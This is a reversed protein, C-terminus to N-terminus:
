SLIWMRHNLDRIRALEDLMARQNQLMAQEAASVQPAPPNFKQKNRMFIDMIQQETIAEEEEEEVQQVPPPLVVKSAEKAKEITISKEKAAIMMPISKELKRLMIPGVDNLYIMATELSNILVNYVKDDWGSLECDHYPCYTKSHYSLLVHKKACLPCHKEIQSYQKWNLTKWSKHIRKTDIMTTGRM